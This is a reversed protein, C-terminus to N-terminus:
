DSDLCLRIRGEKLLNWLLDCPKANKYTRGMQEAPVHPCNGYKIRADISGDKKTIPEFYPCMECTFEAGQLRYEDGLCEPQPETKAYQLVVRNETFQYVTPNCDKLEVIKANLQEELVQASDSQVIAFQQISRSRM